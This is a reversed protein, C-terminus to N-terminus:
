GLLSPSLTNWLLNQVELAFQVNNFACKDQRIRSM